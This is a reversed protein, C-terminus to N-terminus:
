FALKLAGSRWADLVAKAEVDYAKAATTGAHSLWAKVLAYGLSYGCQYPFDGGKADLKGVFWEGHSYSTSGLHALARKSFSTLAKGRCEVAYFPTPMGCEEEFVCALGESVLAEGFTDGYAPRASHHLEHFLTSRLESDSHAVFHSNNSDYAM